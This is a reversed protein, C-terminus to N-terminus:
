IDRRHGQPRDPSPDKGPPGSGTHQSLSGGTAPPV